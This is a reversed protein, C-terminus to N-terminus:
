VRGLRRRRSGELHREMDRGGRQVCRDLRFQRAGPKTAGLRDINATDAKAVIGRARQQHGIAAEGRGRSGQAVVDLLERQHEPRAEFLDTM